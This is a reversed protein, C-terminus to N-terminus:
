GLLADACGAAYAATEDEPAPHGCSGSAPLAESVEAVHPLMGDEGRVRHGRLHVVQRGASRRREAHTRDAAHHRLRAREFLPDVAPEGLVDRSLRQSLRSDFERTPACGHKHVLAQTAIHMADNLCQNSREYDGALFAVRSDSIVDWARRITPVVEDLADRQRCVYGDEIWARRERLGIM